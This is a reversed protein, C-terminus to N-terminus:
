YFFGHAGFESPLWSVVVPFKDIMFSAIASHGFVDSEGLYNVWLTIIAAYAVAGFALGWVGGLTRDLWGLMVTQVLKSLFHAALAALVVVIVLVIAFAVWYGVTPQPLFALTRGFPPALRFGLFLGLLFGFFPIFSRVVGTFVGIVTSGILLAILVGDLWNM